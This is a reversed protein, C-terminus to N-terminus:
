DKLRKIHDTLGITSGSFEEMSSGDKTLNRLKRALKKGLEVGWQDFSNLNWIVGEVFTRHEFLALLKGLIKPTLKSYILTTSPRNGSCFLHSKPVFLQKQEKSSEELNNEPNMGTMLAESQALCNEVLREHHDNKLNEEFGNAGVIFECPVVQKSQHLFQYFAHQGNTGTQGWSVPTSLYSILDGHRNVSKGNSEMDLQQLYTTLYELRHEYPLIARSPYQCISAHWIGVLALMTPLNEATESTQFEKDLSRAGELFERFVAAGLSLIVPMGIPGWISFRGGVWDEFEFIQEELIGFELAYDRSSCVGVFNRMGSQGLASIVWRKATEANTLTELTTFSKSSIIFLTTHPNLQSVTDSLDSSDLNSVFHIKPGSHYPSLARVVMRPGLDSGGIGINVVDSFSEGSQSSIKGSRIDECFKSVKELSQNVKLSIDVGDVSLPSSLNRLATHLVSRNETINIKKGSFMDNARAKVSSFKALNILNAKAHADLNTKSYDLVLDDTVVSFNNFRSKDGEFLSKIHRSSTQERNKRLIKWYKETM